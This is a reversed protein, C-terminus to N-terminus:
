VANDEIETYVARVYKPLLDVPYTKNRIKGLHWWWKALPQEADDKILYQSVESLTLLYNIVGADINALESQEMDNLVMNDVDERLPRLVPGEGQELCFDVQQRYGRLREAYPYAM